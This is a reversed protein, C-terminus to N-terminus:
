RHKFFYQRDNYFVVSLCNFTNSISHRCVLWITPTQNIKCTKFIMNSEKEVGAPCSCNEDSNDICFITDDLLIRLEVNNLYLFSGITDQLQPM